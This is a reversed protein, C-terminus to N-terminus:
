YTESRMVSYDIPDRRGIIFTTQVRPFDLSPTFLDSVVCLVDCLMSITCLRTRLRRLHPYVHVRVRTTTNFFVISPTFPDLAVYTSLTRFPVETGCPPLSSSPPLDGLIELDTRKRGWLWLRSSAVLFHITRSPRAISLIGVVLCFLDPLARYWPVM